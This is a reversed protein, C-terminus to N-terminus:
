NLARRMLLLLSHRKPPTADEAELEAVTLGLLNLVRSLLQDQRSVRATLQQLLEEHRDVKILLDTLRIELRDLREKDHESM